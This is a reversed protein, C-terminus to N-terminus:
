ARRSAISSKAVPRTVSVTGDNEGLWHSDQDSFDRFATSSRM